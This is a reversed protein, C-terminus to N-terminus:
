KSVRSAIQTFTMTVVADKEGLAENAAKLCEAAALKEDLKTLDSKMNFSTRHAARVVADRIFHAKERYKWPDKGDGVKMRANVFLYNKLKGEDNFVPFVLGGLDISRAVEREDPTGSAEGHGDSPPPAALAPAVALFAFAALFLKRRTMALTQM